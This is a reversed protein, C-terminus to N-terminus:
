NHPNLSLQLELVNREHEKLKEAEEQSLTPIVELNDRAQNKEIVQKEAATV